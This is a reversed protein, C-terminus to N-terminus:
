VLIFIKKCVKTINDNITIINNGPQLIVLEPSPDTEKHPVTSSVVTNGFAFICPAYTVKVCDPVVSVVVVSEVPVNEKVSIVAPSQSTLIDL